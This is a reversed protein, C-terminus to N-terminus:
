RMWLTVSQRRRFIWGGNSLVAVDLYRIGLTLDKGTTTPDNLQYVVAYTDMTARDSGDDLDILPDGIMHMSTPFPRPARMSELWEDLSQTGRAGIIEADPHFLAALAPVDRADAARSYRQLLERLADYPTM